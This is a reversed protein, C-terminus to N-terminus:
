GSPPCHGRRDCSLSAPIFYTGVMRLTSYTVSSGGLVAGIGLRILMKQTSGKGHDHSHGHGSDDGHSHDEHHAHDHDHEPEGNHEHDHTHHHAPQSGVHGAGTISDRKVKEKVQIHPELKKVMRTAESVIAESDDKDTEFTLTQAVFNVSCSSVGNIKSVGSEIKQACNACDLGDLVLERKVKPSTTGM